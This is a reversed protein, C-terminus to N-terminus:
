ILVKKTFNNVKYTNKIRKELCIKKWIEASIIRANLDLYRVLTTFCANFTNSSFSFYFFYIDFLSNVENMWAQRSTDLSFICFQEYWTSGTHIHKFLFDILLALLISKLTKWIEFQKEILGLNIPRISKIHPSNNYKCGKDQFGISVTNKTTGELNLLAQQNSSM